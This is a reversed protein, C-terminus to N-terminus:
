QLNPTPQIKKGEGQAESQATSRPRIWEVRKINVRFLTVAEVLNNINLQLVARHLLWFVVLKDQVLISIERKNFVICSKIEKL